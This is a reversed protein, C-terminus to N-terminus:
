SRCGVAPLLTAVTAETAPMLERAVPRLQHQEHDAGVVHKMCWAMAGRDTEVLALKCRPEKM